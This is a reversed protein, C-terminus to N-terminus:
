GLVLQQVLSIRQLEDRAHECATSVIRRVRVEVSIEPQHAELTKALQSIADARQESARYACTEHVTERM